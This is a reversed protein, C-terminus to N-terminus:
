MVDVQELLLKLDMFTKEWDKKKGDEEIMESKDEERDIKCHELLQTLSPGNIRLKKPVKSKLISDLCEIEEDSSVCIKESKRKKELNTENKEKFFQQQYFSFFSDKKEESELNGDIEM